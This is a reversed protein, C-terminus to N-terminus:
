SELCPGHASDLPSFTAILVSDHESANHFAHCVGKPIVVTSGAPADVTGSSLQIYGGGSLVFVILDSEPHTHPDEHGRIVVLAEKVGAQAGLDQEVLQPKDRPIKDLKERLQQAIDDLSVTDSGAITFLPFGTGVGTHQTM